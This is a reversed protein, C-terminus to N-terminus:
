WITRTRRMIGSPVVNALRYYCKKTLVRWFLHSLPLGPACFLVRHKDRTLTSDGPRDRRAAICTNQAM